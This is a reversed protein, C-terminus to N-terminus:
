RELLYPDGGVEFLGLELVHFVTLPNSEGNIGASACVVSMHVADCTGGTREETQQRGLVGGAVVHLYHLTNGHLDHELRARVAIMPKSRPHTDHWLDIQMLSAGCVTAVAHVGRCLGQSIPTTTAIAAKM